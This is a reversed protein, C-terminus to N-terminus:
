LVKVQKVIKVFEAGDLSAGGVLLGNMKAEKIYNAAIKSNVSGGYLISIEEALKRSYLKSLTQRIFLEAKMADDPQCPNGTGIAWVPEYAITLDRMQARNISELGEILQSKVILSMEEEEKEGVCLVPKLRAKLAALLKKNVMENTEGFYKRRESHGIIVYKCGLGKLMAGSVEGTYAGEKEWFLDQGGLKLNSIQSKGAPRCPLLNSIYPYPPCIVIEIGKISKVGKEVAGFLREAEKQTTPNCKWNAIIFLKNKM